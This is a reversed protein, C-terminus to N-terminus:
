HYVENNPKMNKADHNSKALEICKIFSDTSKEYLILADSLKIEGNEVLKCLIATVSGFLLDLSFGLPKDNIIKHLAEFSKAVEEAMM